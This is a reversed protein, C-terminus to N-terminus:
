SFTTYVRLKQKLKELNKFPIDWIGSMEYVPITLTIPEVDHNSEILRIIDKNITTKNERYNRIVYFEDIRIDDALLEYTKRDYLERYLTNYEPQCGMCIYLLFIDKKPDGSHLNETLVNQCFHCIMM